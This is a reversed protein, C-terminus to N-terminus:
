AEEIYICTITTAYKTAELSTVKRESQTPASTSFAHESGAEPETM